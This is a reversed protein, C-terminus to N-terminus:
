VSGERCRQLYDPSVKEDDALKPVVVKEGNGVEIFAALDEVADAPDNDPVLDDDLVATCNGAGYEQWGYSVGFDSKTDPYASLGHERLLGIVRVPGDDVRVEYASRTQLELMAYTRGKKDKVTTQKWASAIAPKGVVAVNPAFVNAWDLQPTVSGKVLKGLTSAVSTPLAAAVQAAADKGHWVDPNAAGIEAWTTLTSAMRALQADDFGDPTAPREPVALTGGMRPWGIDLSALSM